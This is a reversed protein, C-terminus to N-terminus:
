CKLYSVPINRKRPATIIKIDFELVFCDTCISCCATQATCLSLSVLPFTPILSLLCLHSCSFLLPLSFYSLHLILPSLSPVNFPLYFIVPSFCDSFLFFHSILTKSPPPTFAPFNCCLSFSLSALDFNDIKM